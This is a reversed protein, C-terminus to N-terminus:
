QVPRIYYNLIKIMGTDVTGYAKLRAPEIDCVNAWNITMKSQVMARLSTRSPKLNFYDAIENILSRLSKTKISLEQKQECTLDDVVDYMRGAPVNNLYKEIEDIDKEIINLTISIIRLHNENM